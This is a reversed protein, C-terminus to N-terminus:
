WSMHQNGFYTEIPAAHRGRKHRSAHQRTGGAMCLKIDVFGQWVPSFASKSLAKRFFRNGGLATGFSRQDSPDPARRLCQLCACSPLALEDLLFKLFLEVHFLEIPRAPLGGADVARACAAGQEAAAQQKSGRASSAEGLRSGQGARVQQWARDQAARSGLRRGGQGARGQGAARGRGGQGQRFAPASAAAQAGPACPQEVAALAALQEASHRQLLVELEVRRQREVRPAAAAGDQRQALVRAGVGGACVVRETAPASRARAQPEGRTEDLGKTLGVGM